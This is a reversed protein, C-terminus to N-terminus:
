PWLRLAAIWGWVGGASEDRRIVPDSLQPDTYRPDSM